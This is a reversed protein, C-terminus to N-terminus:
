WKEPQTKMPISLLESFASALQRRAEGSAGALVSRAAERRRYLEVSRAIASENGVSRGDIVWDSMNVTEFVGAFKMSYAVGICPIGSSLAAICSHMRSGIFFDCSGIVGKIEHQDYESIVVRVRTRLREPLMDRVSECARPDSEVSEMSAFTHPVLWVESPQEALLAAILAPLFAAYDLTLGFMNKRTYGGHFMLGNVNIGIVGGPIRDALPPDLAIKEPRISELSFAVDPCFRIDRGPAVLGRVIALSQRDRALIISSRNLISRALCRATSSRYPGFTQPFQILDGKVLLVTWDVLCSRLFGALGYIDSFSDGGHINGVLASSAVAEIWPTSRRIAQRVCDFPLLRYIASLLLIWLLHDRLRSRLSLRVNVVPIARMEGAVRFRAPKDDQNGLLLVVENASACGSCLNVLSAGLALVGRNGSSIPTGMVAIKM